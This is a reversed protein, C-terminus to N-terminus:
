EVTVSKALNRPFDVDYGRLVALHFSLLQLPIVTLIGQLCDVTQPLELPTTPMRVFILTTRAAFSSPGVRISLSDLDLVDTM